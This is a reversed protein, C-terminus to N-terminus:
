DVNLVIPQERFRKTIPIKLRMGNKLQFDSGIVDRNAAYIKDYAQADGYYELALDYINRNEEVQVEVWKLPPSLPQIVQHIEVQQRKKKPIVKVIHTKVKTKHKKIYHKKIRKKKPVVKVIHTRVKTKRKKIKQKKIKKKKVFKYRKIIKKSQVLKKKSQLLERKVRALEQKTAELETLLKKTESEKRKKFQKVSKLVETLKGEVVKEEVKQKVVPVKKTPKSSSCSPKQKAFFPITCGHARNKSYLLNKEEVSSAFL